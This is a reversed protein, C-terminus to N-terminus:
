RKTKKGLGVYPQQQGSGMGSTAPHSSQWAALGHWWDMGRSGCLTLFGKVIAIVAVALNGKCPSCATGVCFPEVLGTLEFEPGEQSLDLWVVVTCDANMM